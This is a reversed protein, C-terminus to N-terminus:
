LRRFYKCDLFDNPFIGGQPLKKDDFLYIGCLAFWHSIIGTCTYKKRVKRYENKKYDKEDRSFPTMIIGNIDSGIGIENYSRILPLLKNRFYRDWWIGKDINNKKEMCKEEYLLDINPILVTSSEIFYEPLTTWHDIGLYKSRTHIINGDGIYLMAHQYPNNTIWRFVTSQAGRIGVRLPVSKNNQKIMRVCEKPNELLVSGIPINELIMNKEDKRDRFEYTSSVLRYFICVIIFIIILLGIIKITYSM